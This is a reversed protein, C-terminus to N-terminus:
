SISLPYILQCRLEPLATQAGFAKEVIGVCSKVGLGEPSRQLTMFDDGIDARIGTISFRGLIIQEIIFKILFPEHNFAGIGPHVAKAGNQGSVM